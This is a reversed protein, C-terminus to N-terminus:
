STRMTALTFFDVRTAAARRADAARREAQARALPAIVGALLADRRDPAQLAADLRAACTALDGDRGKIYAHGVRGEASRVSCRTVTMEGLNFREGGGGARGRLMVLGTEPGRLTTCDPLPPLPALLDAIEGVRARALVSMWHRREQPEGHDTSGTHDPM